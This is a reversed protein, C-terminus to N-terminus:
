TRAGQRGGKRTAARRRRSPAPEEEPEEDAEDQLGEDEEDQDEPLEDEAEDESLEDEAEDEPLEEEDETEDEPLEDEAEDEAGEDGVDQEQDEQEQEEEERRATEDDKVVESDRIEGHWGQIDEAHLVAETMVHREFHKLELRARRGVARWLNATKEFLGKPHYELVMIIRTLNDTIEHFTVAGDIYGKAGKSRWVIRDFPVQELITSEWNRRSWFVKGTWQLKEDSAQEVQEVKKMFKPWDAFLTWQDYALRIPVGVDVQEVINTLKIKKGGGGKGKGGGGLSEKVDEFKDKATQKINEMAGSFRSEGEGSKQVGTVAGLLNGGGGEAYDNLRGATGTVKDSVASLAREAFTGALGQLSKQLHKTPSLDQVAKGASGAAGTATKGAQGATGAATKGAKGVTETATKGLRRTAEGLTRTM